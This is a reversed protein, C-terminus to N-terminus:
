QIVMLSHGTQLYIAQKIGFTTLSFNHLILYVYYDTQVDNALHKLADTVASFSKAHQSRHKIAALFWEWEHFKIFGMCQILIYNMKEKINM